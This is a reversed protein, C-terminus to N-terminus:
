HSVPQIQTSIVELLNGSIHEILVQSLITESTTLCVFCAAEGVAAAEHKQLHMVVNFVSWLVRRHHTDTRSMRRTEIRPKVPDTQPIRNGFATFQSVVFRPAVRISVFEFLHQRAYTVFDNLDVRTRKPLVRLFKCLQDLSSELFNLRLPLTSRQL